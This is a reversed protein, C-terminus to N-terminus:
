SLLFESRQNFILGNFAPRVEVLRCWTISVTCLALLDNKLKSKAAIRECLQSCKPLAVSHQLRAVGIFDTISPQKRSFHHTGQAVEM